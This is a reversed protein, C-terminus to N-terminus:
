QTVETVHRLACLRDLTGELGRQNAPVRYTGIEWSTDSWRTVAEWAIMQAKGVPLDMLKKRISARRIQARDLPGDPCQSFINSM